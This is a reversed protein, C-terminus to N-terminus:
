KKKKKKKKEYNIHKNQNVLQWMDIAFTFLLPFFFSFVVSSNAYMIAGKREEGGQLEECVCLCRHSQPMVVPFSFCCERKECSNSHGKKKKIDGQEGQETEVSKHGDRLM